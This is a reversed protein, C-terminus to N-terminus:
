KGGKNKKRKKKIKGYIIWAIILVVAVGVYIGTKNKTILGLELAEEQTYIEVPLNVNKIQPNNEFDKFTVKASLVPNKNKFIVDFTAIDSDESNITGIFIKDKSILEFGEPFAQVSVSKLDGLGRNIIELTIKGKEGVIGVDTEDGSSEVSFDIDTKASVRLGFSGTKEFTENDKDANVYRIMYPINYDGPAIDSSARITFTVGDKDDEDIDDIEKESSGVSTFPLNDLVLSVSVDKIDFNENNDIEITVSGSEGPFITIYDSDVIIADGTIQTAIFNLSILLIFIGTIALTNQKNIKM